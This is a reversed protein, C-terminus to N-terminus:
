FEELHNEFNSMYEPIKLFMEDTNPTSLNFTISVLTCCLVTNKTDRGTLGSLKAKSIILSGMPEYNLSMGLRWPNLGGLITM